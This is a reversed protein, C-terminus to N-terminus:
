EECTAMPKKFIQRAAVAQKSRVIAWKCIVPQNWYPLAKQIEDPVLENIFTCELQQRTTDPRAAAYRYSM